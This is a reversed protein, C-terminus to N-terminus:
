LNEDAEGHKQLGEHTRQAEFAMFLDVDPQTQREQEKVGAIRLTGRRHPTAPNLRM